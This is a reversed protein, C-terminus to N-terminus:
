KTFYTTARKEGKKTLTKSALGAGLAKTVTPKDLKLADRIQEARLGGSNKSLLDVISALTKESNATTRAGRKRRGNLKPAVSAGRASIAAGAAGRGAFVEAMTSTQILGVLEDALQEAFRTALERVNTRFDNTM